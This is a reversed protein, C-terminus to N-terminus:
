EQISKHNKMEEAVKALSQKSSGDEGLTAVAAHKLARMKERQIKGQMLCKAYEAIKERDILGKDNPKVRLAVNLDDAVLVSNLKQEAYLPWAILPVGHVISELTSNWGCHTLFGGTSGHSLIQVQPAWNPVVFGLGKTRDLFGQPLYELPNDINNTDGFFSANSKNNPTKLVWLFRQGSLELGIALEIVQEHSLNGGSGFSVFLVSDSPQEDLWKICGSGDILGDESGTRIVPGIPYVPPVNDERGRDNMLYDFAVPELDYFSNILIGTAESYCEIMSLFFHYIESKRNQVPDPFDAGHVPVLGPVFQVPESLDRYECSHIKDLKPLSYLCCLGLASSLFFIYSLAGFERALHIISSGLLDVIVSVLRTEKSLARLSDRIGPISRTITLTMRTEIACDSHLDSVDIPSVHTYSISPPLNQLLTLQSKSPPSGDNLILITITFNLRTLRTALEILPILHGMGPTPIIAIHPTEQM